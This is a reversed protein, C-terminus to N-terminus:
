KRQAPLCSNFVATSRTVTNATRISQTVLDLSCGLRSITTCLHFSTHPACGEHTVLLAVVPVGNVVAVYTSMLSPDSRM